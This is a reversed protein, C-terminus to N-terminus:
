AYVALMMLINSRKPRLNAFHDDIDTDPPGRPTVQTVLCRAYVALMWFLAQQVRWATYGVDYLNEWFNSCKGALM